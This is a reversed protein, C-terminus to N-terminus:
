KTPYCSICSVGLIVWYLHQKSVGFTNRTADLHWEFVSARWRGPLGTSKIGAFGGHAHQLPRCCEKESRTPPQKEVGRFFSPSRWNAKHCEWNIHFTMLAMNWLVLWPHDAFMPIVPIKVWAIIFAVRVPHILMEQRLKLSDLVIIMEPEQSPKLKM